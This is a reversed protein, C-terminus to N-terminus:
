KLTGGLADDGAHGSKMADGMMNDAKMSNPKMGESKM